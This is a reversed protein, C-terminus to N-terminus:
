ISMRRRRRMMIMMMVAAVVRMMMILHMEMMVVVVVAAAVIMMIIIIMQILITLIGLSRSLSLSALIRIIKLKHKGSIGQQSLSCLYGFCSPIEKLFKCDHLALHELNPFADDAVIWEKFFKIRQLKLVKLQPFEGDSVEWEENDFHISQLKLVQLNQFSAIESLYQPHLYFDRVTLSRLDPASISFPITKALSTNRRLIKLIGIWTPFKLVYYQFNDVGDVECRLERLNPTRGLIFEADQICSFYPTSLTKLDYLKKSKELLEEATEIIFNCKSIHLYRLKVMEWLSVPLSMQADQYHSHRLILTELNWHNAMFSSLSSVQTRAAFYRLYVLDIPFSDIRISELDLVKLLRFSHFNHSVTGFAAGDNHLIISGVHPLCSSWDGNLYRDGYVFTRHALQKHYCVRGSPNVHQDRKICLLLNEEKAKEKCFDHLLDHIHCAKIKGGSSKKTGMVLNRRILNELYGEAIDEMSKGECGKIFGESIWLKTLKSVNIVSDELFAGFYLFCSRLHYPLNQYSHEVTAKSNSHIYPSLNKAVQEWCEEKREMEALIGAVLVISLPLQGCKEAIQQGINMLLPPFREGGFVIKRLLMWSEDDNFMRLPLPDSQFKAYNAVEHNRTTLIIRSGNNADRFCRIIDDWVSAEWVDDVLILYRKSYLAKRLEDALQDVHKGGCEFDKSTADHLIELLLNKRSYVQSVCCQARIDFHSVVLKDSYLRRALTTKGLGPMGTISIVDRGKTGGILQDRLKEIVDKFGVVEDNMITSRALSSPTQTKGTNNMAEEVIKKGQIETVENRIHAIEEIIDLLWRELCWLPGEKSIFADVIYEVEYAKGILQTACRQCKDLGDHREEAVDVLFPQLSEFEKQIIQVQNKIYAPSDAYRRKFEKLNNLLFDVYGLGLIRPLNSQFAKRFTPYIRKGISQINGSLDLVQEPNVEGPAVDEKEEEEGRYLSYVLLGVDIIATDIVPLFELDQIPVHIINARLLNLMEQLIALHDKLAVRQSSNNNTPLDALNHLITELFSAETDIAQEQNQIKHYWGASQITSKLSQLVDVYIKRICPQTPKIRMRLLDSLLVNIEESTLDPLYLWFLMSTHGAVALAHTFFNVIHQSEPERLSKSVFCFFNQLMKLEKLVDEIHKMITEPVIIFSCRVYIKVLDRLNEVVTDMFETMFKRIAIGDKNASLPLYSIKPFAYKARIERKILWIENQLKFTCFDFYEALHLESFDLLADQYLAQVKHTVDLMNPEKTFIQLSKSLLPYKENFQFLM